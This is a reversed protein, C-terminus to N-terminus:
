DEGHSQRREEETLLTPFGVEVVDGAHKLDLLGIRKADGALAILEEAGADLIRCWPSKFLLIGRLGLLYGLLLAYTTTAPTPDVKRRTKRGRGQLHGSQTWSSSANRVVKDLIEDNLRDGVADRIADTMQQRALETGNPMAHIPKATARLLPDRALSCLLALLPRGREENDWLRRLIRFLPSKPDLIYLEGLRQNTLKRTSVTRKDTVNEETIAHAYDARTSEAPLHSLIQSLEELMITRSTLTGKDGFRFGFNRAFATERLDFM